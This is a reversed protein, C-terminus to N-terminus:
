EEELDEDSINFFEKFYNSAVINDTSSNKLMIKVWKIAEKKERYKFELARRSDAHHILHIRFIDEQTKLEM